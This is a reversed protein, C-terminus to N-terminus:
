SPVELPIESLESPLNDNTRHQEEPSTSEKKETAINEDTVPLHHNSVSKNDLVPDVNNDDYKANTANEMVDRPIIPLLTKSIQDIDLSVSKM